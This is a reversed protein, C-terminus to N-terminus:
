FRDYLGELYLLKSTRSNVDAIKMSHVVVENYYFVILEIVTVTCLNVYVRVFVICYHDRNINWDKTAHYFM